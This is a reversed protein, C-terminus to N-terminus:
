VIPVTNRLAVMMQHASEGSMEYPSFEPNGSYIMNLNKTLSSEPIYGMWWDSFERQIIEQYDLMVIDTHRPDNLIRHYTKNIAKRSGEICQLFYKQSFCLLGTVHTSKNEKKAVEIINAVQGQDFGSTITSTYVLRVLFM